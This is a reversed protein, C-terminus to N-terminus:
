RPEIGHRRPQEALHTLGKSGHQSDASAIVYVGDPVELEIVLESGDLPLVEGNKMERVALGIHRSGDANLRDFVTRIEFYSRSARLLGLDENM